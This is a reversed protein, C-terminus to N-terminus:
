ENRQGLSELVDDLLSSAGIRFHPPDSAEPGMENRVAQLWQVGELATRIGGAAKLGAQHGTAKRFRKLADMMAMGVPLTANVKEKGTSTKVFDAGAMLATLAARGVQNLTELDGTALIVKLHAVGAAERFARIEEYLRAWEGTLAWERRIVVDIEQAGAASASEVERVRQEQTSLGHPFGASVTAVTIGSSELAELALPVFAPYVCVAAVRCTGMEPGLKKKLVGTLPSRATRCLRRVRAATDDGSLTTLDISELVQLLARRGDEGSPLGAQGAASAREAVRPPNISFGRVWGLDFDMGPNRPPRSANEVRAANEGNAPM